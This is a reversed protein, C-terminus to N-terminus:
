EAKLARVPDVSAARRAPMYSAVATAAALVAPVAIYTVPDLTRVGFLLSTMIRTLVAAGALGIPIGIAVLLLGSRVFMGTLEGRQAGLAVRIGIERTRESVAYAIVGYIGVLGLALAMAGALSVMVLTFATRAMSRDYVDQMTRISAVALNPNVSWVAGQLEKVLGESAARHTRVVFTVTRTAAPSARYPSNGFAPWYAVAPAAEDIGNQHVDEVVGIVERWPANPTTKVRQGIAGAPLGWFEQALNESVILVNRREYLDTWTYERGAVVRAGITEFFGPSARVFLRMPPIDTGNWPKTEAILVDWDPPFGEMPMTSAFAVRSVGPLAALRDVIDNQIRIVRAPDAVLPAPITIRMTQLTKPENFGPAVAHLATATRIMLGACVLLVLALAVQAVVLTNRVRHRDRAATATRASGGLGGPVSPATLKLAPVAGFLAGSILSVVIGFMFSRPDIIIERLRPLTAPGHAVFLRLAGFAVALGAAGGALGVLVSEVLLGRVMRARGAGLAARIALEQQRAEARVLLLTAINACAIVLVLGIAGMLVWLSRGANGVVDQQLPRIAPTIRWSQYVLPNVGAAAPWSAMWLPVLRALDANAEAIAVGPKLRAIGLFGFGPLTLRSRDFQLPVILDDDANPWHFGAPMVGVIETPKGDVTIARGVISRDGGFRRQWYGYSLLVTFGGNPRFDAAQLWRGLAPEVGLTQLAGDTVLVTRVEDPEGVGSVTATAPSWIGLHDFTRNQEAYTFYMSASLRLDGSVSTLGPVGPATHWLGVLRDPAHYPLPKLLVADVIAFVAVNAGIGITLTIVAIITFTPSRRLARVSHRVDRALEEIWPLGRQDRVAEMSQAITGARATTRAEAAFDLHSRLEAELDADSRRRRLTSWLRIVWERLMAM